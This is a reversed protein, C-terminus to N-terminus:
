ASKPPASASAVLSKREQARWVVDDGRRGRVSDDAARDPGPSYLAFGNRTPEYVYPAGTFPDIPLTGGLSAVLADLNEPYAGHEAHYLEIGLGIRALGTQANQAAIEGLSDIYFSLLMGSFMSTVSLDEFEQQVTERISESEYYPMAAAESVQRMVRAYNAIDANLFPRWAFSLQLADKYEGDVLHAIAGERMAEELPILNNEANLRIEDAHREPTIESHQLARQLRQVQQASLQSVAFAHELTAVVQGNYNVLTLSMYSGTSDASLESLLQLSLVLDDVAAETDGREGMMMAHLQLIRQITISPFYAPENGFPNLPAGGEGLRHIELILGEHAAFFVEAMRQLEATWKLPATNSRLSIRGGFLNLLTDLERDSALVADLEELLVTWEGIRVERDASTEDSRPESADTDVTFAVDVHTEQRVAGGDRARELGSEGSSAVRLSRLEAIAAERGSETIEIAAVFLMAIVAVVSLFGLALTNCKRAM